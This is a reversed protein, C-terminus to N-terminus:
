YTPIPVTCLRSTLVRGTVYYDVATDAQVTDVQGACYLLTWCLGAGRDQAAAGGRRGAGGGLGAAGGSQHQPRRAVGGCGPYNYLQESSRGLGCKVQQFYASYETQSGVKGRFEQM